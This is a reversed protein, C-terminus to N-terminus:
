STIQRDRGLKRWKNCRIRLTVKLRDGAKLELENESWDLDLHDACEEYAQAKAFCEEATLKQSM